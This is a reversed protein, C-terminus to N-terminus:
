LIISSSSLKLDVAAVQAVVEAPVAADAVADVVAAEPVDAGVVADGEIAEVTEVEIMGNPPYARTRLRETVTSTQSTTPSIRVVKLPSRVAAKRRLRLQTSLNARVTTAM